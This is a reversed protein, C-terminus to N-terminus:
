DSYREPNQFRAPLFPVHQFIAQRIHVALVHGPILGRDVEHTVTDATPGCDIFDHAKMIGSVTGRNEAEIGMRFSEEPGCTKEM